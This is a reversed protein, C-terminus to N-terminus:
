IFHVAKLRPNNQKFTPAITRFAKTDSLILYELWPLSLFSVQNPSFLTEVINLHRLSLFHNQILRLAPGSFNTKRLILYQLRPCAHGLLSLVNDSLKTCFSLDIYRMGSCRELIYLVGNDTINCRALSLKMFRNANLHPDLSRFGTRSLILLTSDDAIDSIPAMDIGNWM